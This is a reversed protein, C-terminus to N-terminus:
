RNAALIADHRRTSTLLRNKVREIRAAGNVNSLGNVACHRLRIGNKRRKKGRNTWNSHSHIACIPMTWTLSVMSYNIKMYTLRYIAGFCHDDIVGRLLVLIIFISILFQSPFNLMQQDFVVLAIASSRQQQQNNDYKILWNRHIRLGHGPSKWQAFWICHQQQQQAGLLNCLCCDCDYM